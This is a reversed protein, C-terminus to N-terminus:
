CSCKLIEKIKKEGFVYNLNDISKEVQYLLFNIIKNNIVIDEQYSLQSFHTSVMGFNVDINTTYDCM